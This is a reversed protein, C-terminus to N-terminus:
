FAQGISIFLQVRSLEDVPNLAYGLDVRIPGVITNYRLGAGAAYRIDGFDYSLSSPYVNGYDLFLVGGIKRYLPFRTELNGILISNGGLPDDDEDLPGLRQFPFGRMSASGGAFFRKFVPVDFEGTSGFPQIFGFQIRKAFM